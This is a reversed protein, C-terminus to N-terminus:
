VAVRYFFCKGFNHNRQCINTKDNGFNARLAYLITSFLWHYIRSYGMSLAMQSHLNKLM